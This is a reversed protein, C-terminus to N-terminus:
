MSALLRYAFRASRNHRCIFRLVGCPCEVQLAATGSFYLADAYDCYVTLKSASAGTPDPMRVYTETRNGFSWTCLRWPMCTEHQSCTAQQRSSRRVLMHRAPAAQLKCILLAQGGDGEWGDAAAHVSERQWACGLRTGVHRGTRAHTYSALTLLRMLCSAVACTATFVHATTAPSKRSTCKTSKLLSVNLVNQLAASLM